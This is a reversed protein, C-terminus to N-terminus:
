FREWGESRSLGLLEAVPQGSAAALCAWLEKTTSNSNRLIPLFVWPRLQFRLFHGFIYIYILIHIYIYINIMHYLIRDKQIHVVPIKFFCVLCYQGINNNCEQLQLTLRANLVAREVVAWFSFAAGQNPPKLMRWSETFIVFSNVLTKVMGVACEPDIQIFDFLNRELKHGLMKCKELWDSLGKRFTDHGLSHYLM